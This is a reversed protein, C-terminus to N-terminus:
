EECYLVKLQAANNKLLKQSVGELHTEISDKLKGHTAYNTVANYVDWKTVNTKGELRMLIQKQHKKAIGFREMIEIISKIEFLENMALRIKEQLKKSSQIALKVFDNTTQRIVELNKEKVGSHFTIKRIDNFVNGLAMGNQCVYRYAFLELRFSTTKDYSNMIRIGLQVGEKGDDIKDVGKLLLDAKLQNGNNKTKIVGWVDMGIAGLSEVVAQCVDNHSIIQYNKHAVQVLKETRMNYIGVWKKIPIPNQENGYFIQTKVAQDFQGISKAMENLNNIKM